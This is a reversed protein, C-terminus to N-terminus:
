TLLSGEALTEGANSGKRRELQFQQDSGTSSCLEIALDYDM